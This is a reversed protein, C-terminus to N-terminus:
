LITVLIAFALLFRIDRWFFVCCPANATATAIALWFSFETASRAPVIKQQIENNPLAGPPLHMTSEASGMVWFKVNNQFRAGMAPKGRVDFVCFLMQM